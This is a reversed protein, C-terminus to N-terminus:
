AAGTPTTAQQTQTQEPTPLLLVKALPGRLKGPAVHVLDELDHRLGWRMAAFFLGTCVLGAFLFQLAGAAIIVARQPGQTSVVSRAWREFEPGLWRSLAFAALCSTVAVLWPKTMAALVRVGSIGQRRFIWVTVMARSALLWLGAAWAMSTAKPNIIAGVAVAIMFGLGEIATMAAYARFRGQAQLLASAIGYTIRWPFFIGLIVVAPTGAAWKGNWLLKELPEFVAALGVSAISGVIMLARVARLMAERQRAPDDNLRQFTPTLVVMLNWGLLIGVQATANFGWFFLGCQERPALGLPELLLFPGWDVAFTALSAFMLWRSQRMLGPWITREAPRLWLSERTLRWAFISEFAAAALMAWGISMIGLGAFALLMVTCQRVINGVVSIRAIGRFELGLRLKNLLMGSLTGVPLALAMLWLLPPLQVDRGVLRAVPLSVLFIACAAALNYTYALWFTPGALSEYRERGQQVILERMGAERCVMVFGAVATALAIAAMQDENLKWGLVIQAALALFKGLVTVSLLWFMGSGVKRALAEGPPKGADEAQVAASMLPAATEPTSPEM